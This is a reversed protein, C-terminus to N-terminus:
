EGTRYNVQKSEWLSTLDKYKERDKTEYQCLIDTEDM